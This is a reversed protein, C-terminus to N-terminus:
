ATVGQAQPQAASAPPAQREIRNVISLAALATAEVIDTSVGNGRM